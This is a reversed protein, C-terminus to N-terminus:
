TRKVFHLGCKPCIIEIKGKGKPLRLTQKCSACKFFRYSKQDAWHRQKGAFWNTFRGKLSLYANNEATRKEINRSFIRLLALVFVALGLWYVVLVGFLSGCLMLVFGLLNADRSLRDVGNRGYMWQQLRCRMQTLFNM